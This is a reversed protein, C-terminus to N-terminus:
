CQSFTLYSSHLITVPYAVRKQELIQALAILVDLYFVIIDFTSTNSSSLLICEQKVEYPKVYVLFPIRRLVFTSIPLIARRPGQHLVLTETSYYIHVRIHNVTKISILSVQLFCRFGWYKSVSYGMGVFLICRRGKIYVGSALARHVPLGRPSDVTAVNM